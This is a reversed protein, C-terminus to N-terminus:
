GLTYYYNKKNETSYRFGLIEAAEKGFYGGDEIILNTRGNRLSYIIAGLRLIRNKIAWFNDVYGKEKLRQVVMETQYLKKSKKFTFKM